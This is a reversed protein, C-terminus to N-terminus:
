AQRRRSPKKATAIGNSECWRSFMASLRKAADQDDAKPSNRLIERLSALFLEPAAVPWYILLSRARGEGAKLAGARHLSWIIKHINPESCGIIDALEKRTPSEGTKKQYDHLAALVKVQAQSLVGEAAM